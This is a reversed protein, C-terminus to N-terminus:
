CEWRCRVIDVHFDDKFPVGEELLLYRQEQWGPVLRGAHNVVRHCPYTGYYEAMSLVRGVLRANKDRGILRAIQGYTAVCGEPIEEVVSLIEYILNDDLTRGTIM